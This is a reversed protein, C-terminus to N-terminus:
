VRIQGRDLFISKFRHIVVDAVVDNDVEDTCHKFIGVISPISIVLVRRSLEKRSREIGLIGNVSQSIRSRTSHITTSGESSVEVRPLLETGM